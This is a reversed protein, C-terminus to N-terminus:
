SEVDTGAASVWAHTTQAVIRGDRVVLTDAGHRVRGADGRATWTLLAYDDAVTVDEYVHRGPGAYGHHSEALRRVGDRGRHAGSGWTLVVVGEAYNNALDTELDGLRLCELHADIVDRTTRM